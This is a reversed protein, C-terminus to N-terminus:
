FNFSYGEGRNALIGLDRKGKFALLWFGNGM